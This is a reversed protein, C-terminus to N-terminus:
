QSVQSANEPGAELINGRKGINVELSMVLGERLPDIAPNTVQSISLHAVLCSGYKLFLLMLFTCFYSKITERISFKKQLSEDKLYVHFIRCLCKGTSYQEM